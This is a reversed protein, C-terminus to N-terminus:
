NKGAPYGVSQALIVHQTTRLKMLKALEHRPVMGRVVTALGEAACYLCVNQSIFGADAASYLIRDTVEAEVMRSYDAVYVLNVPAEAVFPQMGTHIRIDKDLIRKLAHNRADYLYLGDAAALYVDIEHWEHASPATRGGTKQRNIGFAAWLLSSLMQPPLPRDSFERSTRRDQLAQLLSKGPEMNPAPLKIVEPAGATSRATPQLLLGGEPQMQLMLMRRRTGARRHSRCKRMYLLAAPAYGLQGPDFLRASSAHNTPMRAFAPL